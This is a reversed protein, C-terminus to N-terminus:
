SRGPALFLVEVGGLWDSFSYTGHLTGTDPLVVISSFTNLSKVKSFTLLFPSLYYYNTKLPSLRKNAERISGIQPTLDVETVPSMNSLFFDFVGGLSKTVLTIGDEPLIGLDPIKQWLVLTLLHPWYKINSGKSDM